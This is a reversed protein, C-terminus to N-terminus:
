LRTCCVNASRKFNDALLWFAFADLNVMDDEEMTSNKRALQSSASSNAEEQFTKIL